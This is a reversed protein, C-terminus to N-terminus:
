HDDASFRVVDEIRCASLVDELQASFCEGEWLVDTLGKRLTALIEIKAGAPITITARAEKPKAVVPRLLNCNVSM